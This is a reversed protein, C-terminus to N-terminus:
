SLELRRVSVAVCHSRVGGDAAPYLPRHFEEVSQSGFPNPRTGHNNGRSRSINLLCSHWVGVGDTGISSSAFASSDQLTHHSCPLGYRCWAPRKTEWTRCGWNRCSPSSCPRPEPICANATRFSLVRGTGSAAYWGAYWWITRLSLFRGRCARPRLTCDRTRGVHCACRLTWASRVASRVDPELRFQVRSWRASTWSSRGAMNSSVRSVVRCCQHHWIVDTM